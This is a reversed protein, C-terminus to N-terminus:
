PWRIKPAMRMRIARRDPSHANTPPSVCKRTAQHDVWLLEGPESWRSPSSVSMHIGVQPLVPNQFLNRRRVGHGLLWTARVITGTDQSQITLRAFGSNEPM